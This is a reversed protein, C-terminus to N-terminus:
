HVPKDSSIRGGDKLNMVREIHLVRPFQAQPGFEFIGVFVATITKDITGAMGRELAADLAALESANQHTTAEFPSIGFKCGTSTLLSNDMGDSEFRASFQIRKGNFESPKQVVACVTTRVISDNAPVPPVSM